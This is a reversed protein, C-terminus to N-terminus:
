SFRLEHEDVEVRVPTAEAVHQRRDPVLGRVFHFLLEPVGPLDDDSLDVTIFFTLLASCLLLLYICKVISRKSTINVYTYIREFVQQM